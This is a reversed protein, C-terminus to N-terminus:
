RDQMFLLDVIYIRREAASDTKIYYEIFPEATDVPIDTIETHKLVGNVYFEIKADASNMEARYINLTTLDIGSISNYSEIGGIVVCAYLNGNVVKFGFGDQCWQHAIDGVGFYAHQLTDYNFFLSTQFFPNKACDFIFSEIANTFFAYSENGNVATTHLHAAFLAATFSGSIAWGDVSEFTSLMLVKSMTLYRLDISGFRHDLKEQVRHMYLVSGEQQHANVNENHGEVYEQISQEIRQNDNAAKGLNGWCVIAM